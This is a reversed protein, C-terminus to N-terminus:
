SAENDLYNQLSRIVEEFPVNVNYVGQGISKLLSMRLEGSENKKDHKLWTAIVELDELRFNLREFKSDIGTVILNYDDNSLGSFRRSLDSEIIM